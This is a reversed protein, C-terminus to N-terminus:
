EKEKYIEIGDIVALLEKEKKAKRAKQREEYKNLELVSIFCSVAVIMVIVFLTM